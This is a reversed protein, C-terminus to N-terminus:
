QYFFSVEIVYFLANPLMSDVNNIDRAFRNLIRGSPNNNFFIMKARSVGRFLLDHLNISIRLCMRFFLVGRFTFALITLVTLATYIFLYMYREQEVEDIQTDFQKENTKAVLSDNNSLILNAKAKAVREEWNVRFLIM